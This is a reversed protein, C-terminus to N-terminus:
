TPRRFTERHLTKLVIMRLKVLNFGYKWKSRLLVDTDTTHTEHIPYVTSFQENNILHIDQFFIFDDIYYYLVRLVSLLPTEGVLQGTSGFDRYVM